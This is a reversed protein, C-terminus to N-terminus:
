NMLHVLSKIEESVTFMSKRKGPVGCVCVQM